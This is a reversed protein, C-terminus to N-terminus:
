MVSIMYTKLDKKQKTKKKFQIAKINARAVKRVKSKFRRM